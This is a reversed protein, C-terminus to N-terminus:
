RRAPGRRDEHRLLVDVLDTALAIREPDAAILRALGDALRGIADDEASALRATVEAAVAEADGGAAEPALAATLATALATAIDRGQGARVVATAAAALSGALELDRLDFSGGARDLVELVGVTGADDFLPTALLSRPVYGTAEAVTRDFRPDAAVDAVALPQGTSFAYGAIGARPDIALGVVDGAAPGAAVTFVLRDRGSDHLAISSAAADLVVTATRVIAALADTSGSSPALRAALAGRRAVAVLADLAAARAQTPDDSM